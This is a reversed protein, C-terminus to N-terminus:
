ARDYIGGRASDNINGFKVLLVMCNETNKIFQIVWHEYRPKQQVCLESEAKAVSYVWILFRLESRWWIRRYTESENDVKLELGKLVRTISVIRACLYRYMLGSTGVKSSDMYEHEFYVPGSIRTNTARWYAIIKVNLSEGCVSWIRLAHRMTALILRIFGVM